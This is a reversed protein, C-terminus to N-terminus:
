NGILIVAAWDYPHTYPKKAGPKFLLRDRSDIVPV